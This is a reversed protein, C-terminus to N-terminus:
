GGSAWGYSQFQALNRQVRKDNADRVARAAHGAIESASANTGAVNITVHVDGNGPYRGQWNSLGRAYNAQTDGYYGGAKLRAAFQQANQVGAVGAYRASNMLHAYYTGFAQLSSFSRYDQGHGGPVNIGALNNLSTAGRNTFGGTEHAWQAWILSAPIGTQGSVSQALLAAQQAMSGPAAEATSRAHARWLDFLGGGVGGAAAGITTGTAGGVLIGAGIGAPGGPIGAVGGVISGIVGGVSGGGLVGTLTGTIKALFEFTLALWHVLTQVATALKQVSFTTGEISSNGSLLGVINTFLLGFDEFVALASKGVDVVGRWIPLFWQTIAQSIRPMNRIVWDNFQRLKALLQDPGTGLAGLFDQVVHFMLYEAEVRMRTFEFRIDRIKRMQADFDGTPAMARQDAILQQTRRRLEADWTLNELPEGLADMAIKLSRATDKSMYMHLAFLRYTQDAMAVKDAMGIAATGIAAFGAGIEVETRLVARVMDGINTTVISKAERLANQFRSLGVQDTSFGLKVLYEDLYGPM